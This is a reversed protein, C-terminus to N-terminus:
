PQVSKELDLMDTPSSTRRASHGCSSSRLSICITLCNQCRVKFHYDLWKMGCDAAVKRMGDILRTLCSRVRDRKIVRSTDTRKLAKSVGCWFEDLCAAVLDKCCVKPPETVVHYTVM